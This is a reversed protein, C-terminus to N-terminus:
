IPLHPVLQNIFPDNILWLSHSGINIIFAIYSTISELDSLNIRFSGLYPSHFTTLFTFFIRLASIQLLIEQSDLYCGQALALNACAHAIICIYRTPQM